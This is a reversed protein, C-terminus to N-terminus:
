NFTNTQTNHDGVQVGQAERADVVHTPDHRGSVGLERLLSRAAALIEPDEDAGSASLLEGLRAQWVGPEDESAELVQADCAELVQASDEGRAFLRRRVAERLGTYTDRVASSATDTLGASAGAALAAVVLEVGTM